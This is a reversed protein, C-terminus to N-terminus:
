RLSWLPSDAVSLWFSSPGFLSLSSCGSCGAVVWGGGVVDEPQNPQNPYEVVSAFVVSSCLLWCSGGLSVSGVESILWDSFVCGRMLSVIVAGGSGGFDSGGFDSGGFGSSGFGLCDDLQNPNHDDLVGAGEFM